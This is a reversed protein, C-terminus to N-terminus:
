ACELFDVRRRVPARPPPQAALALLTLIKWIVAPEETGPNSPRSSRAHSSVANLTTVRLGLSQTEIDAKRRSIQLLWSGSRASRRSGRALKVKGSLIRLLVRVSGAEAPNQKGFDFSQKRADFRLSPHRSIASLSSKGTTGFRQMASTRVARYREREDAARCSRRLRPPPATPQLTNNPMSLSTTRLEVSLPRSAAYLGASM